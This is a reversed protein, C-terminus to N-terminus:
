PSNNVILQAIHEGIVASGLMSPHANDPGFYPHFEACEEDDEPCFGCEENEPCENFNMFSAIDLYFVVDQYNEENALTKYAENLALIDDRVIDNIAGKGYEQYGCLVIKVPRSNKVIIDDILDKMFGKLEEITVLQEPPTTAAQRWKLYIEWGGALIIVWEYDQSSFKGNYSEKAFDIDSGGFALNLIHSNLEQAASDVAGSCFIPSHMGLMSDGIALYKPNDYDDYEIGCKFNYYCSSFVMLLTLVGLFMIYFGRGLM